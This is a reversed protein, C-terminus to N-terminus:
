VSQRHEPGAGAVHQKVSAQVGGSASVGCRLVSRKRDVESTSGASCMASRCLGSLARLRTHCDTIHWMCVGCCAPHSNFCTSQYPWSVLLHKDIVM